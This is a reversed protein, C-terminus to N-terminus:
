SMMSCMASQGTVLASICAASFINPGFRPDSLPYVTRRAFSWTSVPTSGTGFSIISIYWSMVSAISMVKTLLVGNKMVTARPILNPVTSTSNFRCTWVIQAESFFTTLRYRFRPNRTTVISASLSNSGKHCHNGQKFVQAASSCTGSISLYMLVTLSREQLVYRMSGNLYKGRITRTWRMLFAM